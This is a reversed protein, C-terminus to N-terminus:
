ASKAIAKRSQVLIFLVNTVIFIAALVATAYAIHFLSGSFVYLVIIFSTAYIFILTREVKNDPVTKLMYIFLYYVFTNLFWALGFWLSYGSLFYEEYGVFSLIAGPALWEAIFVAGYSLSILALSVGLIQVLYKSIHKKGEAMLDKGTLVVVLSTSIFLPFKYLFAYTTYIVYNTDSLLSKLVIGDLGFFVVLSLQILMNVLIQVTDIKLDKALQKNKNVFFKKLLEKVSINDEKAVALFTIYTNILPTVLFATFLPWVAGNSVFLLTFLTRAIPATLALLGTLTFKERIVAIAQPFVAIMGLSNSILLLVIILSEDVALPLNRIIIIACIIISIILNIISTKKILIAIANFRDEQKIASLKLLIWNYLSSTAYGLLGMTYIGFNLTALNPDTLQKVQKQIYFGGVQLISSLASFFIVKFYSSYFFKRFFSTLREKQSKNDFM